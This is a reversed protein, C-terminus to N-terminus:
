QKESASLTHGIFMVAARHGKEKTEVTLTLEVAGPQLLVTAQAGSNDICRFVIFSQQYYGVHSVTLPKGSRDHWVAVILDDDGLAAFLTNFGTHLQEYLEVASISVASPVGYARARDCLHDDM